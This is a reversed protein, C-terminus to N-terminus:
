SAFFSIQENDSPTHFICAHTLWQIMNRLSYSSKSLHGVHLLLRYLVLRLRDSPGFTARSSTSSDVGHLSLLFFLLNRLQDHPVKRHFISQLTQERVRPIGFQHVPMMFLPFLIPHNSMRCISSLPLFKVCLVM